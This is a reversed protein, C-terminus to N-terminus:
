ITVDHHAGLYLERGLLVPAELPPRLLAPDREGLRHSPADNLVEISLFRKGGARREHSFRKLDRAELVIESM